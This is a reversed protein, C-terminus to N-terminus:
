SWSTPFSLAKNFFNKGMAKLSLRKKEIEYKTPSTSNRILTIDIPILLKKKVIRDIQIGNFRGSELANVDFRYPLSSM